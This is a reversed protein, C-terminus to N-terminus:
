ARENRAAGAGAPREAGNNRVHDVALAGAAALGLIAAGLAWGGAVDTAYHVRLYVRSAGVGVTVLLAAGVLLADKALGSVSRALVLAAAVWITSYAAHGSPFSAGPAATLPAPPRPRAIGAKVLHVAVFLSVGAAVLAGLDVYRRRRALVTGAGALLLVAVPLSGLDTLVGVVDVVAGSRLSDALDLLQRDVSM